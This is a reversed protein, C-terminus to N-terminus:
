TKLIQLIQFKQEISSIEGWDSHELKDKLASEIVKNEPIQELKSQNKKLYELLENARIM